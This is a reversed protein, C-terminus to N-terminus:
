RVTAEAIAQAVLGPTDRQLTARLVAFQEHLANARAPDDLFATLAPGLREASVDQQVFEPVVHKGALINPLGFYPILAKRMTIWATLWPVKYAIVMPKGFLMAELTATGGAVLVVDAAELCDHSRGAFVTVRARGANARDLMTDLMTRLDDSAGPIVFQMSNDRAQLWRITDCFPPGLAQVEPKRSGPLLAITTAGPDIGLRKRAAAPDSHQPLRNALPHGVYTTRVGADAFIKEEFPLVPLLHGVARAVQKIREPRWAWVAPAVYQITRIGSARLKEQVGLNFDPADIGVYVDAPWELARRMLDRRIRLLRPLHRLVEAYGRVSLERVHWWADFGAAIMQDGGIGACQDDGLRAHLAPLVLGALMDGSAEGAAMAVRAPGPM